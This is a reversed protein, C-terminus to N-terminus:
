DTSKCRAQKQGKNKKKLRFYLLRNKKKKKKKKEQTRQKIEGHLGNSSLEM